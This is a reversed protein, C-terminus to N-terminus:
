EKHFPTLLQLKQPIFPIIEKRMFFYVLILFIAGGVSLGILLQLINSINNLLFYMPIFTIITAILPKIVGRAVEFFILRRMLIIPIISTVSIITFSIAVGQFGFFGVWLPVFIWTLLVWMIMLTLTTKIKGLSNLANVMPSSFAAMVSVISFLYFSFIAPEWKTYKPILFILPKMSILLFLTAPFILLALVFITKELARKLLEKNDQLRAFAPFTVRIVSDMIIRLPTEAWKKAWGVYGLENLPLMKGLFLTLLDDKVLALLSNTQFPIGFTLLHKLHAFSFRFSIKWPSIYYIVIVGTIGRAIAGWAFSYVGFNLFALVLTVLYYAFSEVVQPISLTGFELKRELLISPITKLSSLFFSFLLAYLLFVGDNGLKYFQTILPSFLTIIVIISLVLMEQLTFVTTLEEKSPEEKKQVM